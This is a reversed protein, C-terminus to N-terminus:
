LSRHVMEDLSIVEDRRRQTRSGQDTSKAVPAGLLHPRGTARERGPLWGDKSGASSDEEAPSGFLSGVPDMEKPTHRLTPGDRLLILHKQKYMQYM